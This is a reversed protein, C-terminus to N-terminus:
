SNLVDNRIYDQISNIHFSLSQEVAYFQGNNNSSIIKGTQDDIEDYTYTVLLGGRIDMVMFGSLQKM